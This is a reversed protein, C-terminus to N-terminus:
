GLETRISVGNIVPPVLKRVTNDIKKAVIVIAYGDSDSVVVSSSYWAYLSLKMKLELRVQNAEKFTATM